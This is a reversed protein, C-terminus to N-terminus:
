ADDDTREEGEPCMDILAQSMRVYGQEIAKDFDIIVLASDEMLTQMEASAHCYYEAINRYDFVIHRQAAAILFQKEEDSVKSANIAQVLALAKGADALDGIAPQDGQPQYIPTNIKRSYVPASAAGASPDFLSALDSADFGMLALNFGEIRLDALELRLLEDNWTANEALRNDAIVYARIKSESWGRAVIVPVDELGLRMGAMVRGHGAIIRDSEDVLIPTTWGWERMSAALQAVQADSHERANRAYPVLSLLPRTEVQTAPWATPPTPADDARARAVPAAARATGAPSRPTATRAM